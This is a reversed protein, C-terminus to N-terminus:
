KLCHSGHTSSSLVCLEQCNNCHSELSEGVPRQKSYNRRPQSIPTVLTSPALTTETSEARAPEVVM